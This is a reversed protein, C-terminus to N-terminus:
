TGCFTRYGCFEPPPPERLAADAATPAFPRRLAALLAEFPALDGAEAAALAAEVRHNRAIVAPNAARMRAPASCGADSERALRARWRADWEARSADPVPSPEALARFTSTFDAKAAHMWALLDRVLAADDREEAVLGLKARFCQIWARGHEAPFAGLLENARDVALAEDGEHAIMLPLLSEALRALNWQAIAPQQSYRYRGHRDISSFVSEPDFADIFACPGYDITEGSVAMNDTNMVGHVFGVSQWRAITRAQRLVVRGLFLAARDAEATLDPDHRAIAHDTLRELLTRDGLAAAYEFTGVRIHSAATRVLVAGRKLGDRPIMEGTTAVALSRTSPIGLAHMAESVLFERLMPGLAARGDGRRSFPTQGAGKLHLDFSEGAPSVQEGILIARGDGLMTGHGYQHGAYAQAIPVAGPPLWAGTAFRALHARREPEGAPFALGLSEALPANWAVLEPAPFRAPEAREWFPDPLAAYTARLNWGSPDAPATM